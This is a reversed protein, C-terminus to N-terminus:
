SSFLLVDTLVKGPKGWTKEGMEPLSLGGGLMKRVVLLRHISFLVMCLSALIAIGSFGFGSTVFAYPLFLVATAVFGKFISFVTAVPGLKHVDAALKEKTSIRQYHKAYSDRISNKQVDPEDSDDTDDRPGEGYKM